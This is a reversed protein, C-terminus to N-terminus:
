QATVVFNARRNRAWAAENSSPDLPREKGYSITDVRNASIGNNTLFEKVKSARREGLAINYQIGGNEDCHGEVQISLGPKDKLIQVNGRLKAKADTTLTDSDYPFNVTELGMASGNDSTLGTNTDAGYADPTEDETKKKTSSCGALTLAATVALVASIRTIITTNLTMFRAGESFNIFTHITKVAQIYLM